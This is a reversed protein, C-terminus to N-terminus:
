LSVLPFSNLSLDIIIYGFVVIVMVLFIAAAKRLVQASAKQRVALVPRAPVYEKSFPLLQLDRLAGRLFKFEIFVVILLPLFTLLIHFISGLWGSLHVSYGIGWVIFFNIFSMAWLIVLTVPLAVIIFVIIRFSLSRSTKFKFLDFM